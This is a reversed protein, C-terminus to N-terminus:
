KGREWAGATQHSQNGRLGCRRAMDSLTLDAALRLETLTALRQVNPKPM